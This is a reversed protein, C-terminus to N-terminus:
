FKKSLGSLFFVLLYCNLIKKLHNKYFPILEDLIFNSVIAQKKNDLPWYFNIIGNENFKADSLKLSRIIKNSVKKVDDNM